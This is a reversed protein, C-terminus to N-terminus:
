MSVSLACLSGEVRFIRGSEFVRFTLFFTFSEEEDMVLALQKEERGLFADRIRKKQRLLTHFKEPALLTQYQDRPVKQHCWVCGCM